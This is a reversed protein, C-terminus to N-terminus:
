GIIENAWFHTLMGAFDEPSNFNASADVWDRCVANTLRDDSDTLPKRNVPVNDNLDAAIESRTISDFTKNPNTAM